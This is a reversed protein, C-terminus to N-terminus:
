TKFKNLLDLAKYADTEPIFIHDHHYGAVVNASVGGESLINSFAATLGVAELSSHVQLTIQKFTGNFKLEGEVARQKELILTYGEEEKFIMLPNLGLIADSLVCGVTCFVFVGEQLSPEMNELLTRLNTIGTM